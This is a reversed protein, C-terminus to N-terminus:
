GAVSQWPRTSRRAARRRGIAPAALTVAYPAVAAPRSPLGNAQMRIGFADALGFLARAGAVLLPNARGLMVAVVAIWGRGASM